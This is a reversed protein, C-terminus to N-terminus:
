MEMEQQTQAIQQSKQMREIDNVQAVFESTTIQNAQVMNQVQEGINQRDIGKSQANIDKQSANENQLQVKQESNKGDLLENISIDCDKETSRYQSYREHDTFQSDSKLVEPGVREGQMIKEMLEDRDWTLDVNFWKNGIKIQNWAHSAGKESDKGIIVKSEIGKQALVNRLIEAYGGCVCSNDLLGGELNRTTIQLLQDKEGEESIAYEDYPIQAM